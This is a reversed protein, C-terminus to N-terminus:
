DVAAMQQFTTAQARWDLFDPLSANSSPVRPEFRQVMMLEEPRSYPLPKLLLSAVISFMATTAGIGAILVGLLTAFFGPNRRLLRLAFRVDSFIRHMVRM